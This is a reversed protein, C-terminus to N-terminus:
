RRRRSRRVASGRVSLHIVCRVGAAVGSSLSIHLYVREGGSVSLGPDSMDIYKQITTVAPDTGTGETANATMSITSIMGRADNVSFQSTALFSLQASAADGVTDLNSGSMDWDVGVINADEPVDFAGAADGSANGFLQVLMRDAM